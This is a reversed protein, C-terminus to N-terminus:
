ELYNNIKLSNNQHTKSEYTDNELESIYVKNRIINSFTEYSSLDLIIDLLERSNFDFLFSVMNDNDTLVDLENDILIDEYELIKEIDNALDEICEYGNEKSFNNLDNEVMSEYKKYINYQEITEGKKGIEEDTQNFEKKYREYLFEINKNMENFIYRMLDIVLKEGKM